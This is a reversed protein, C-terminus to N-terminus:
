ASLQAWSASFGPLLKSIAVGGSEARSHLEYGRKTLVFVETTHAEPDIIWYEAIGFQEYLDKKEVRDRKWSGDSVVEAVLDPAGRIVEQIMASRGKSIFLVDPQVARHQTLVVDIPSVFVKGLRKATVFDRLLSAFNLVIEQRSPAPAPSMIIEGDWLEVPSNTEPLTAAMEKFTWLRRVQRKPIAATPM